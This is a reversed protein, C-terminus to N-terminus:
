VIVSEGQAIVKYGKEKYIDLVSNSTHIPYIRCNNDCNNLYEVDKIGMHTETSEESSMDVFCVETNKVIYEVNTCLRSDGTFGVKKGKCSVIYGLCIENLSHEM